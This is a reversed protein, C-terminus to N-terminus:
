RTGDAEKDITIGLFETFDTEIEPDFGLEQLEESFKEIDEQCPAALGADDVFLMMMLGPLFLLCPDHPYQKFGLKLLAEM